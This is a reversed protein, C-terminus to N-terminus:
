RGLIPYAHAQLAGRGSSSTSLYGSRRLPYRLLVEHSLISTQILLQRSSPHICIFALLRSFSLCNIKHFYLQIRWSSLPNPLLCRRPVEHSEIGLEDDPAGTNELFKDAGVLSVFYACFLLAM